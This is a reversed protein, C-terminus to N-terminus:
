CVYHRDSDIVANIDDNAKCETANSYQPLLRKKVAPSFGVGSSQTKAGGREHIDATVVTHKSRVISDVPENPQIEVGKPSLGKM